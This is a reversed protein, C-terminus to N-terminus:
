ETLDSTQDRPIVKISSAKPLNGNGGSPFASEIKSSKCCITFSGTGCNGGLLYGLIRVSNTSLHRTFSTWSLAVGLSRITLETIDLVLM